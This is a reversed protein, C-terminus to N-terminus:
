VYFMWWVCKLVLVSVLLMSCMILNDSNKGLLLSYKVGCVLVSGGGSISLVMGVLMDFSVKWIM